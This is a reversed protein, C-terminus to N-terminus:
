LESLIEEIAKYTKFISDIKVKEYISHPYQITPGISAFAVNPMKEKLIGCELGAHIVKIKSSGFTKELAKATLKTFENYEPKWGPYFGHLKTDYGRKQWYEKADQAIKHLKTSDLSRMSIEIELIDEKLSILAINSSSEVVDFESNYELVGNPFNIIDDLFSSDYLSAKSKIKKVIFNKNSPLYAASVLAKSHVPISNIKEGGELSAITANHKKLYKALEIIANPINKDIDVGSHGGVFGQTKIEYYNDFSDKKELKKSVKLDIGGACGVFLEGEEESDLNLLYPSKIYLELANAGVLGVEEDNTFLAEIAAQEKMLYLIMAIAVGNDAGLSSNKAKLWGDEKILSINPAEGVCVMDYHAQLCLKPNPHFCLINGSKDIEVKYNYSKAKEIIYEKLAQTKFSCHPIQTIEKFIELIEQM